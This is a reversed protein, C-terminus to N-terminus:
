QCDEDIPRHTVHRPGDHECFKTTAMAPQSELHAWILGCGSRLPETTFGELIQELAISVLTGSLKTVVEEQVRLPWKRSDRLLHAVLNM